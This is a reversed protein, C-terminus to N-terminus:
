NTWAMTILAPYKDEYKSRLSRRRRKGGGCVPVCTNGKKVCLKLQCHLYVDGAKGSFQFMNFSFYSSTGVGNGVVVVTGDATNACGSTILNYNLSASSSAEDTAWCSDTVVAVANDDLGDTKLEVWIREDLKIETSSTIAQTRDSDTYANMTLTYTWEGSQIEQVVSSDKIKIGLGMSKVDPESIFCSFDIQVQDMRTVTGSGDKRAMIANKYILQNKEASVVTGCSNDGSDFNFTVMGNDVVGKCTQKNLHLTSYDINKEELLCRALSLSASNQSCVTPDGFSNTARYSSAYIARCLCANETGGTNSMRDGCFEHPSCFKDQCYAKPAVSCGATARWGDLTDSSHSSCTTAYAELLQCLLDDGAPYNCLINKCASIYPGPPIHMNCTTFPEQMLLNCRATMADCDITSDPTDTYSTDCGSASFSPHKMSTLSLFTSDGPIGCAGHVRPGKYDTMDIQVTYGDFFVPIIQGSYPIKATVGTGDKSLEVGHVTKPTDSLTQVESDVRVRGGQELYILVTKDNNLQLVVSDLFSVDKRRRERLLGLVRFAATASPRMLTHGCRTSTSSIRGFIDIITSGTMTCMRPPPICEGNGQCWAASGCTFEDTFVGTADCEKNSCTKPEEVTGGVKHFTGEHRCGTLEYYVDINALDSSIQNSQVVKSTVKMSIDVQSKSAYLATTKIRVAAQTGFDHFEMTLADSGSAKTVVSVHCKGPTKIASLAAHLPSGVPLEDTNVTGEAADIDPSDMSVCDLPNEAADFCATLMVDKSIYIKDYTQGFYTIPCTSIDITVPGFKEAQVASGALLSLVAQYLLFHLMISGADSPKTSSCLASPSRPRQSSFSSQTEPPHLLEPDRPPSPARPRQPTFSSQTEPPHLLEPDQTICAM